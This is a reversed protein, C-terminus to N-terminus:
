TDRGVGGRSSRLPTSRSVARTGKDFPHCHSCLGGNTNVWNGLLDEAYPYISYTGSNVIAPVDCTMSWTGDQATGDTLTAYADCWPTITGNLSAQLGVAEVGTDDTVQASVTISDGPAASSPSTAVSVITPAAFDSTTALALGPGGIPAIWLVTTMSAIVTAACARTIRRKM